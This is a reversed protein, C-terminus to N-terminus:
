LNSGELKIYPTLFMKKLLTDDLVLGSYSVFFFPPPPLHNCTFLIAHIFARLLNLFQLFTAHGLQVSLPLTSLYAPAVYHFATSAM